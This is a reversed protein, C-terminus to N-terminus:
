DQHSLGKASEPLTANKIIDDIDAQTITRGAEAKLSLTVNGNSDVSIGDAGSDGNVTKITVTKALRWAPSRM